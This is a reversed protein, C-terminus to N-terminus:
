PTHTPPSPHYTYVTQAAHENRHTEYLRVGAGVGRYVCERIVGRGGECVRQRLTVKVFLFSFSQFIIGEGARLKCGSRFGDSLSWDDVLCSRTSRDLVM